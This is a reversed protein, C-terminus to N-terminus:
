EDPYKPWVEAHPQNDCWWRRSATDSKEFLKARKVSEVHGDCLVIDYGGPHPGYPRGIQEVFFPTVTENAFWSFGFLRTEIYPPSDYVQRADAIAYMDAPSRVASEPRADGLRQDWPFNPVVSGLETATSYAYSGWCASAGGSASSRQGTTGRYAPCRYLDNTYFSLTYPQLFDPWMSNNTVGPSVYFPYRRYDSVYMGLGIGFQRLNSRCQASRGQAKARSLAPLLMAALIAIIAIVVLLEILTFGAPM